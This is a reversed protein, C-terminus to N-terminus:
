PMAIAADWDQIEPPTLSRGTKLYESRTAQLIHQMMVPENADAALFAANLAIARITGGTVDLQGLLAFDLDRTPTELPFIRQWIESRAEPKPYPFNVIFRLRRLFARDFADKLNTTLIALGQYAEMRQLLYSVELNAYRDRGDKVQTRKGFVADAEDFLLVVGGMEAANFIQSLNKETEGIYKSTVASLDIRYLDLNFELALVEAAMTKGTGSTGAFLAAIGLGRKSKKAFGWTEYVTARQKVQIALEQLMSKERAPLVLDDWTATCEIRQALHELRPRAQKRCYNWLISSLPVEPNSKARDCAAKIVAPTLNFQASLQVVESALEPATELYNTWLAYKERFSLLPLDFTELPCNPFHLRDRSSIIVPTTVTEVLLSLANTQTPDNANATDGDILLLRDSLIAERQWLKALLDRPDVPLRHASLLGFTLGLAHCVRAIIPIKASLDGGCLQLRPFTDSTLAALLQAAIATQSPTLPEIGDLAPFRVIGALRDDITAEGLLYCLIRKDLRIPTQMLNYGPAFELMKWDQLPQQPSLVSWSADPFLTFAVSLSPAKQQPDGNIKACLEAIRSDINAGVCLTLIDREFPSLGFRDRLRELTCTEPLPQRPPLEAKKGGALSELASLLLSVERYLAQWNEQYWPSLASANM